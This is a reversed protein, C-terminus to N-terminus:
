IRFVNYLISRSPIAPPSTDAMQSLINRTSISASTFTYFNPPTIALQSTAYLSLSEFANSRQDDSIKIQLSQDKCCDKSKEQVTCNAHHTQVKLSVSKLKGCCYFLNVSVGFSTFSYLTLLAVITFKKLM